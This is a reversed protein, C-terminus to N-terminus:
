SDSRPVELAADVTRRMDKLLQSAQDFRAYLHQLDKWAQDQNGSDSAAVAARASAAAQELEVALERVMQRAAAVKTEDM